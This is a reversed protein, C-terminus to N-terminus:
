DGSVDPHDGGVNGMPNLVLSIHLEHFYHARGPYISEDSVYNGMGEELLTLFLVPMTACPM